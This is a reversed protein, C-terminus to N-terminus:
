FIPYHRNNKKKEFNLINFKYNPRRKKKKKKKQDITQEFYDDNEDDIDEESNLDIDKEKQDFIEQMEIWTQMNPPPLEEDRILGPWINSSKKKLNFLFKGISNEQWSSQLRNIEGFLKISLEFKITTDSITCFGSFILIKDYSIDVLLEEVELCGPSDFRHSYKIEIMIYDKNQAWRFAPQVIHTNKQYIHIFNKM